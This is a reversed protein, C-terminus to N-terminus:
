GAAPGATVAARVAIGGRGAGGAPVGHHGAGPRSRVVPTGPVQALGPPAPGPPGPGPVGPGPRGAHDGAAHRPGAHRGPDGPQGPRVGQRPRHVCRPRGIVGAVLAALEGALGPEWGPVVLSINLNGPDHYVTGGGSARRLVPVGSAACAAANVERSVRQGRGIVVCAGNQWIRLLPRRPVARVLAEELALNAAEDGLGADDQVLVDMGGLLQASVPRGPMVGGARGEREGRVSCGAGARRYPGFDGTLAPGPGAAVSGAPKGRRFQM